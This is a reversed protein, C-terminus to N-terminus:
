GGPTAESEVRFGLPGHGAGLGPAAHLARQLYAFAATVAEPLLHGRALNATIAASLTCGTGHTHRTHLRPARFTLSHGPTRLEDTVTEGAGHGGKLLLPLTDPAGAQRLADWEPLNPTVLTALPLLETVLTHLAQADLLADGSKALLVPDVILPLNRGRLEAAVAAVIAPTGLAGTKVAGVPFDDLVARIQARVLEPPLPHVGHVGLTNQATVLTVASTGFVGHAEFVKLDAQLGAGGGSDSGAITLAVPLASM